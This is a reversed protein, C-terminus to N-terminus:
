RFKSPAHLPGGVGMSSLDAGFVAIVGAIGSGLGIPVYVRDLKPVARFLELAYTAVGLVIDRHFSPM